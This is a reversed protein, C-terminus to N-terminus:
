AGAMGILIALALPGQSLVQTRDTGTMGAFLSLPLAYLMLMRNLITAQKADFDHHWGAIFGLVLTVVIPLLAGIVTEIM